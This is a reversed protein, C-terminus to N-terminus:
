SSLREVLGLPRGDSSGFEDMGEKEGYGMGMGWVGDGGYYRGDYGGRRAGCLSVESPSM